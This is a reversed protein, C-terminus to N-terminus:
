SQKGRKSKNFLTSIVGVICVGSWLCFVANWGMNSMVSAFLLNTGAAAVYGTCDLVGNVSSVKGTKGLSPIYISWLVASACSISMLAGVLLILSSYRNHVVLLGAFMVASILFSVRLMAVDREKVSKFIALAVFPMISRLASILSFLMNATTKEFMLNDTLFAPVWFLVASTGIEVIAAIAMYFIFKEIRFVSTLSSFDVKEAINYTVAQKKELIHFAIFLFVSCVIAVLGALVFVIIWNNILAFLSAVLPGVFSVCSFFVCILRAHHLQTNESIVKMLPGRVMSLGFGLLAFCLIQLFYIKVFPFIVTVAGAVFIGSAAMKKPSLRDGLFGNVLQGAAYLVMYVSSLVGIFEVSFYNKEILLPSLVSLINRLYYNVIYTGVSVTGIAAAKKATTM